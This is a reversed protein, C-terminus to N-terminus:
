VVVFSFNSSSVWLSYGCDIKRLSHKMHIIFNIMIKLFNLKKLTGYFSTHVRQLFPSLAVLLILLVIRFRSHKILTISSSTIWPQKTMQKVYLLNVSETGIEFKSPSTVFPTRHWLGLYIAGKIRLRMMGLRKRKKKVESFNEM